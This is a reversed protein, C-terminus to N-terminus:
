FGEGVVQVPQVLQGCSSTIGHEGFLDSQEAVRNGLKLLQRLAGGIRARHPGGVCAPQWTDDFRMEAQLFRQTVAIVRCGPYRLLAPQMPEAVIYPPHQQGILHRGERIEATIEPNEVIPHEDRQIGIYLPAKGLQSLSIASLRQFGWEPVITEHAMM